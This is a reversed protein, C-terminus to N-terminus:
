TNAKIFAKIRRKVDSLAEEAYLYLNLESETPTGNPIASFKSNVAAFAQLEHDFAAKREDCLQQWQEDKTAM